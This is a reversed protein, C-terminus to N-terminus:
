GDDTRRMMDAFNLDRGLRRGPPPKNGSFGEDVLRSGPAMAQERWRHDPIEAPANQEDKERQELEAAQKLLEPGLLRECALALQERAIGTRQCSDQLIVALLITGFFAFNTFTLQLEGSAYDQLYDYIQDLIGCFSIAAIPAIYGSLSHLTDARRNGSSGALAGAAERFGRMSREIESEEKPAWFALPHRRLPVAKLEESILRQPLRQRDMAEVLLCSDAKRLKILLFIGIVPLLGILSWFLPAELLVPLGLAASLLLVAILTSRNAGNTASNNDVASAERLRLIARALNVRSNESEGGSVQGSSLQGDV